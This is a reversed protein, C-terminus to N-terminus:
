KMDAAAPLGYAGTASLVARSIAESCARAALSGVLDIDSKLDGVSLAFIGDGDASTHVPRISRAIGDHTMGAIKCLAPQEFYANTFVAGITTNGVFKNEILEEKAFFAEELDVMEKGNGSRLGALIKGTRWDYVGGFSNVAFVAGVMLEGAKLAFSGIGSKMAFDIGRLKGVTAGCGAGFCGDKYNGGDFAAKAAAYGMAKDPRVSASGVALDFLDLQSVLPVRAVGVYYGVGNEELFQMVGGGADLGFASGGSLVVANIDHAKSLPKLLESERAAPGGGRIDIGARMGDKSLIVTCGTGAAEDEVQGVSINKFEKISIEQM